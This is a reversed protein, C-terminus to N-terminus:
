DALGTNLRMLGMAGQVKFLRREAEMRSLSLWQLIGCCVSVGPHGTNYTYIPVRACLNICNVHINAIAQAEINILQSSLAYLHCNALHQLYVSCNLLM